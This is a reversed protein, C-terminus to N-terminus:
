PNTEYPFFTSSFFPYVLSFGFWKTERTDGDGIFVEGGRGRGRGRRRRVKVVDEEMSSRQGAESDIRSCGVGKRRRKEM